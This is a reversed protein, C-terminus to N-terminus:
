IDCKTCLPFVVNEETKNVLPLIIYGVDDNKDRQVDMYFFM